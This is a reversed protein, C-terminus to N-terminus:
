HCTDLNSALSLHALYGRLTVALTYDLRLEIVSVFPYSLVVFFAPAAALRWGGVALGGM